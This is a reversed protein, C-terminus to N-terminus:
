GSYGRCHPTPARSALVLRWFAIARCVARPPLACAIKFTSIWKPPMTRRTGYNVRGSTPRGNMDARGDPTLSTRGARRAYLSIHPPISFTRSAFGTASALLNIRGAMVAPTNFGVAVGREACYLGAATTATVDM